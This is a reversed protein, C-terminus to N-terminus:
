HSAASCADWRWDPVWNVIFVRWWDRLTLERVALSRIILSLGALRQQRRQQHYPSHVLGARGGQIEGEFYGMATATLMEGFFLASLWLARKRVMTFFGVNLYPADLAEVGGMKQMDETVEQEAVDMVDDVTVM